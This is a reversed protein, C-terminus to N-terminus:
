LEDNPSFARNSVLQMTKFHRKMELEVEYDQNCKTCFWHELECSILTENYEMHEICDSKKKCLNNNNKM